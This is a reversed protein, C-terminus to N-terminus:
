YLSIDVDSFLLFIEMVAWCDKNNMSIFVFNLFAITLDLPKASMTRCEYNAHTVYM